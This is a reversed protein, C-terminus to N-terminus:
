QYFGADALCLEFTGDAFGVAFTSTHSFAVEIDNYGTINVDIEVPASAKTMVPSTYITKGDATVTLFVSENSITGEPVFLTGKFHSYKMGVLYEASPSGSRGAHVGNSIASSYSNGYNDTLKETTAIPNNSINTLDKLMVTPYELQGDMNGLYVTYSPGDWYVAKGLASAVARVPLYTTGNYIMPDVPNGGADTPHLEQGDIVIRIGGVLVDKLTQTSGAALAPIGLAFIVAMTLMGAAFSKWNKGNKM